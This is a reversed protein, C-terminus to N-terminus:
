RCEPERKLTQVREAEAVCHNVLCLRSSVPLVKPKLSRLGDWLYKDYIFLIIVCGKERFNSYRVELRWVSHMTLILDYLMFFDRLSKVNVNRRDAKHGLRKMVSQAHM